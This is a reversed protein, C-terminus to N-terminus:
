SYMYTGSDQEADQLVSNHTKTKMKDTKPKLESQKIHGSDTERGRLLLKRVYRLRDELLGDAPSNKKGRRFWLEQTGM